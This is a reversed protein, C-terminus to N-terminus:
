AWDIAPRATAAQSREVRYVIVFYAIAKNYGSESLKNRWYIGQLYLQYAEPNATYRKTMRKEDESTLRTRLATTIEKAIDGQL